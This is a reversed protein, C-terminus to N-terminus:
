QCFYPINSSFLLSIIIIGLFLYLRKNTGKVISTILGGLYFTSLVIGGEAMLVTLGVSFGKKM